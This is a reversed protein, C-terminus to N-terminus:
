GHVSCCMQLCSEANHMHVAPITCNDLIDQLRTLKREWPVLEAEFPKAFPSAMMAQVKVLHDDLLMQAEDIPGGKLIYSGAILVVTVAVM